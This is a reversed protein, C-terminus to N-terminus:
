SPMVLLELPSCDFLIAAKRIVDARLMLVGSEHWRLVNVCTGLLPAADRLSYGARARAARFAGGMMAQPSGEAAVRRSAKM